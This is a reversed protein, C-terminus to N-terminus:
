RVDLVWRERRRRESEPVGAYLLRHSRSLVMCVLRNQYSKSMWGCAVECKELLATTLTMDFRNLFVVLLLLKTYKVNLVLFNFMKKM